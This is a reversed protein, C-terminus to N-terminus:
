PHIVKTTSAERNRRRQKNANQCTKIFKTKTVAANGFYHRGRTEKVCITKCKPM